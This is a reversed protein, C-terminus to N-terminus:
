GAPGTGLRAAVRRWFEEVRGAAVSRIVPAPLFSLLGTREVVRATWGINTGGGEAPVFAVGVEARAAAGCARGQLALRVADGAREAVLLTVEVPGGVLGGSAVRWVARDAEASLVAEVAEVCDVLFRADGLCASVRASAHPLHLRDAFQIM